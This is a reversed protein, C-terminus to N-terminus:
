TSFSNVLSAKRAAGASRMAQLADYTVQSLRERVRATHAPSDRFPAQYQDSLPYCLM